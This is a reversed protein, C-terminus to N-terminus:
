IIRWVKYASKDSSDWTDRLRHGRVTALHHATSIIFTGKTKALDKATLRKRGGELEKFPSIKIGGHQEIYTSYVQSVNPLDAMERGLATLEDYVDYWNKDFAIAIARIVCDGAKYRLPNPNTYTYFETDKASLKM